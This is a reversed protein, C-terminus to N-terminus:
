AANFDDDRGGLSSDALLLYRKIWSEVNEKWAFFRAAGAKVRPREIDAQTEHEWDYHPKRVREPANAEPLVAGAAAVEPKKKNKPSEPSM